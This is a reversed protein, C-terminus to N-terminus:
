SILLWIALVLILCAGLYQLNQKLGSGVSKSIQHAGIVLLNQWIVSAIFVGLAFILAGLGFGNGGSIASVSPTVGVFYFATAPNIVTLGFFTTYTALISSAKSTSEEGLEQIPKRASLFIQAAVWILLISGLVRLPYVWDGIFQLVLDGLAFVMLAYLFDVSAMALAGFVAVSRGKKITTTILLVAMPGLPIALALGALFGVSFLEM